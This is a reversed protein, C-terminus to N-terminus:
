LFPFSGASVRLPSSARQGAGSLRELLDTIDEAANPRAIYRAMEKMHKMRLPNDVVQCLISDMSDGPSIHAAAGCNILFRANKEEQGPIPSMIFLPLGKVLAESITMGGPKTIIFDSADMFDAVRDTYGFIRAEKGSNLAYAELDKKLRENNGAIAIVQLDRKCSLVSQFIRPVEGLGLSGGMLLATLKDKLKLEKLTKKRDKRQLFSKSVPIGYAYISNRDVGMNVMDQKICEHAVIFADINDLKWFLHNTYDTVIAMVPVNVVGKRKLHSLMHLPVTHTCVIVSPHFDEIISCLKGSFLSNFAKCFNTLKEDVEAMKYLKGYVQPIGKVTLLYGGAILRDALPSAYKLTDIILTRSNRFRREVCEKVAEAARIHGNGTSVTLFLVRM